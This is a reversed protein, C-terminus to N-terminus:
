IEPLVARGIGEGTYQWKPEEGSCGNNSRERDM